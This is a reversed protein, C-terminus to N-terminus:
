KIVTFTKQKLGKDTLIQLYYQGSKLNQVDLKTSFVDSTTEDVEYFLIRGTHDIINYVLRSSSENLKVEVNLENRTPIPFLNLQAEYDPLQNNAVICSGSMVLSASLGARLGTFLFAANEMDPVGTNPDYGTIGIYPLDGDTMTGAQTLILNNCNYDMGEDFGFFPLESGSYRVGVFFRMNDAPITFGPDGTNFDELAIRVVAGSRTEGADFTQTGLALFSVEANTATGDGDADDWGYLIAEPTLGALTAPASVTMFFLISDIKCGLGYPIKVGTLYEANTGDSRRYSSTAFPDRLNTQLRAKSVINSTLYFESVATNDFPSLDPSNSSVNYTITGKGTANGPVKGLFDIPNLFASRTSDVEIVLSGDSTNNHLEASSGGTPTFQIVANVKGGEEINKGKNIVDSGPTMVFDGANRIWGGPFAGYPAHCIGARSNTAVDHDFRINGISINVPGNALEAKIKAGDEFSIMVVPFDARISAGYTGAGMGAVGGNPTNNVIICGIAGWDQAQLAKFSFNCTGRNVLVIKGALESKNTVTDCGDGTNAGEDMMMVADATWINTNLDAAWTPPAGTNGFQYSGAISAPSNVVVSQAMLATAFCYISCFLIVKKM